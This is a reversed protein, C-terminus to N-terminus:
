NSGMINLFLFLLFFIKLTRLIIWMIFSLHIIYFPCILIIFVIFIIFIVIQYISFVQKRKKRWLTKLYILFFIVLAFWGIFWFARLSISNVYYLGNHSYFIIKGDNFIDLISSILSFLISIILCISLSYKEFRTNRIYNIMKAEIRFYDLPIAPLYIERGKRGFRDRFIIFV